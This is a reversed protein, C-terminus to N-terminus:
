STKSKSGWSFWSSTKEEKIEPKDEVVETNEVEEEIKEAEIKEAEIKEAENDSKNEDELLEYGEETIRVADGNVLTHQNINEDIITVKYDAPVGKLGLREKAIWDIFVADLIINGAVYFMSPKALNLSYCDDGIHLTVNLFRCTSIKFNDNLQSLFDKRITTVPYEDNFTYIAMDYMDDSVEAAHADEVAPFSIVNKGEKFLFIRHSPVHSDFILDWGRRYAGIIPTINNNYVTVVEDYATNCKAVAKILVNTTEEPYTKYALHTALVGMSGVLTGYGLYMAISDLDLM